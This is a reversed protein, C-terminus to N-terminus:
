KKVAKELEKEKADKTQKKWSSVLAKFFDKKRLLGRASKAKEFECNFGEIDEETTKISFIKVRM